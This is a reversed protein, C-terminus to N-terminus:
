HRWGFFRVISITIFYCALMVTFSVALSMSFSHGRELLAPLALFLSLSPLVLWFISRSLAAVQAPDRTEAYLWIMALMSVLPVSALLAAILTSRKAIVSILVVLATTALIKAITYHM